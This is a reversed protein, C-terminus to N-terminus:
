LLMLVIFSDAHHDKFYAEFEERCKDMEFMRQNAKLNVKVFRLLNQQLCEMGWLLGEVDRLEANICLWWDVGDGYRDEFKKCVKVMLGINDECLNSATTKAFDGVKFESM